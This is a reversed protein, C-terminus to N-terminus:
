FVCKKIKQGKQRKTLAPLFFLTQFGLINEFSMLIFHKSQKTANKLIGRNVHLLAGCSGLIFNLLNLFHGNKSWKKYPSGKSLGTLGNNTIALM